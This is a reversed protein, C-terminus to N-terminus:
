VGRYTKGPIYKQTVVAGLISVLASLVLVYSVGWDTEIVGFVAAGVTAGIKGSAAAIGNLKVRVDPPFVEAPLCFTSVNPGFNSFFFTMAYLSLLTAKMRLLPEYFAGLIFFLLAMMVFGMVQITKFNMKGVAHVTVYYGPLAILAVIVSCRTVDPLHSNSYGFADELIIPTFIVNGYFTIDFLFWGFAAGVLKHRLSVDEKLSNWLDPGCVEAVSQHPTASEKANFAKQLVFLGPLAGIGLLFRWGMTRGIGFELVLYAVLPALLQGVGQFSFVAAVIKSNKLEDTTAEIATTASLPYVGGVGLGLVFRCAALIYYISDVGWPLIASALAGGISLLLTFIMGQKRGIVDGIYGFTLQGMIAGVLSCSAVMSTLQPSAAPHTHRIMMLAYNIVALNYATSLNAIASVWIKDSVHFKRKAHAASPAYQVQEELLRVM